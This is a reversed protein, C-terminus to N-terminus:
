TNTDQKVACAADPNPLADPNSVVYDKLCRTGTQYRYSVTDGNAHANSDNGMELFGSAHSNVFIDEDSWAGYNEGADYNPV